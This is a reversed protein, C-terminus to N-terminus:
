DRKGPKKRGSKRLTAELRDAYIAREADSMAAVREIWLQEALDRRRAGNRAQSEVEASLAGTDLPTARLLALVREHGRRDAERDIEAARYARRIAKSLARRDEVDLARAFPSGVSEPGSRRDGGGWVHGIVAGGVVGFVLLNLGLSGILILRFRRRVRTRTKSEETM